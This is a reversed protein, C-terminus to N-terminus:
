MENDMCGNLEIKNDYRCLIRNHQMGKIYKIIQKVIQLHSELSFKM